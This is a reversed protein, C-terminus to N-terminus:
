RHDRLEGCPNGTQGYNGGTEPCFYFQREGGTEMMGIRVAFVAPIVGSEYIEMGAGQQRVRGNEMVVISDASRLALDLEHLVMVVTKGLAKLERALRIVEFKHAIDLFGMPEDMLVVPTRQALVMALYVKQREGGSLSPLQRQALPLIDLQEMAERAIRYDEARYHRPYSLHPFRGHLVFREATIEPVSRSQPLYAIHKAREGSTMSRLSKEGLLIDGESPIIGALAKLLTSKGSGNPGVIATIEGQRISLNLDKLVIRGPYGANLHTVELM